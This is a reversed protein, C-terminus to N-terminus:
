YKQHGKPEHYTNQKKLKELVADIEDSSYYLTGGIKTFPITGNNRLTQLTGSSIALVKKVEYSKLWKKTIRGGSQLLLSKIAQIIRQESDRLEQVTVLQDATPVRPISLSQGSRENM